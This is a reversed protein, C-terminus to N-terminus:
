IINLWMVKHPRHKKFYEFSILCFIVLDVYKKFKHLLISVFRNRKKFFIEKNMKNTNELDKRLVKSMEKRITTKKILTWM